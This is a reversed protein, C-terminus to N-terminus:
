LHATVQLRYTYSTLTMTLWESVLVTFLSQNTHTQSKGNICIGQQAGTYAVEGWASNIVTATLVQAQQTRVTPNVAGAASFAHQHIVGGAATLIPSYGWLLSPLLIQHETRFTQCLFYAKLGRVLTQTKQTCSQVGGAAARILKLTPIAVADEVVLSTVTHRVAFVLRVLLLWVATLLREGAWQIKKKNYMPKASLRYLDSKFSTVNTAIPLILYMPIKFGTWQTCTTMKPVKRVIPAQTKSQPNPMNTTALNTICFADGRWCVALALFTESSADVAATDGVVVPAVAHVVTSIVRILQGAVTRLVSHIFFYIFVQQGKVAM